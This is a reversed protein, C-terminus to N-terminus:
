GVQLPLFTALPGSDFNGTFQEDSISLLPGRAVEQANNVLIDLTGFKAITKNLVDQLDETSKVDCRLALAKVGREQLMEATKECKELTRGTVVVNAGQKPDHEIWGKRLLRAFIEADPHHGTHELRNVIDNEPL